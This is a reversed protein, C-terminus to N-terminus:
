PSITVISYQCFSIVILVLGQFPFFFLGGFPQFAYAWDWWDGARGLRGAAISVMCGHLRTCSASCWWGPRHSTGLNWWLIETMKTDCVFLQIPPYFSIIQTSMNEELVHYNFQLERPCRDTRLNRLIHSLLKRVGWADSYIKIKKSKDLDIGEGLM